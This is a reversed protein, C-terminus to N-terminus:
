GFVDCHGHVNIRYIQPSADPCICVFFDLTIPRPLIPPNNWSFISRPRRGASCLTPKTRRHSECSRRSAKFTNPLANGTSTTQSDNLASYVAQNEYQNFTAAAADDSMGSIIPQMQDYDLYAFFYDTWFPDIFEFQKWYGVKVMCLLFERDLPSWFSYTNRGQFVTQSPPNALEDDYEKQLWCEGMGVKMGHAHAADAMQLIRALFDQVVGSNTTNNIPYVHVDLLDLPLNVFNTLYTNFSPQWTGMGAGVIMNTSRLGAAQLDNLFGAVMNTDTTPDNLQNGLNAPLNDVETVPESQVLLYDPQL